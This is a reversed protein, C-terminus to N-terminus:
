SAFPSPGCFAGRPISLRPASPRAWCMPRNTAGGLFATGRFSPRESLQGNKAVIGMQDRPEWSDDPCLTQQADCQTLTGLDVVTADAFDSSAIAGLLALAMLGAFATLAARRTETSISGERPITALPPIISEFEVRGSDGCGHAVEIGECFALRRDPIPKVRAAVANAIQRQQGANKGVLHRRDHAAAPIALALEDQRTPAHRSRRLETSLRDCCGCGRSGASARIALSM